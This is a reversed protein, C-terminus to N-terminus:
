KKIEEIAEKQSELYLKSANLNKNKAIKSYVIGQLYTLKGTTKSTVGRGVLNADVVGINLKEDKLQYALSMGTIGAGIILIDVNIDKDLINIPSNDKEELWISMKKMLDGNNTYIFFSIRFM